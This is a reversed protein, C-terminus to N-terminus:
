VLPRNLIILSDKNYKAAMKLTHSRPNAAFHNFGEGSENIWLKYAERRAQNRSSCVVIAYPTDDPLRSYSSQWPSHLPYAEVYDQNEHTYSFILFPKNM